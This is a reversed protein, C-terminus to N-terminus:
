DISTLIEVGSSAGIRTAGAKVMAKADDFDAIGGSAKVGIEDPVIESIRRVTAPDAGGDYGVATKVIDAGGEVALQAAREVASPELAPSEIIVKLPRDGIAEDVASIGARVSADDGNAFAARNMVLDFEDVHELLAEAEAVTAEPNQTGYPFGIVTVVAAQDALLDAALPAHYPIVVAARFDHERVETCLDRIAGESAAPDVNTHEILSAVRDPNAELDAALSM